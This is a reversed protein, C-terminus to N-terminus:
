CSHYKSEICVGNMPTTGSPCLCAFSGETNSCIMQNSCLQTGDMAGQLCEDIDTFFSFM